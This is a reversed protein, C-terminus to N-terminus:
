KGTPEPNTRRQMADQMGKQAAPPMPHEKTFEDKPIEPSNANCGSVLPAFVAIGCLIALPLIQKKMSKEKLVGAAADYGSGYIIVWV